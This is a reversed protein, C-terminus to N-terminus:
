SVGDPHYIVHVCFHNEGSERQRQRQNSAGLLFSRRFGRLICGRRGAISGALSRTSRRISSLSGTVGRLGRAIGSRVGGVGSASGRRIGGVGGAVSRLFSGVGRLRSLLRATHRAGPPM